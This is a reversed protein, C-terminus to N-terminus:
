LALRNPDGQLVCSAVLIERGSQQTDSRTRDIAMELSRAVDGIVFWGLVFLDVRFLFAKLLGRQIAHVSQQRSWSFLSCSHRNTLRPVTCLANVALTVYSGAIKM